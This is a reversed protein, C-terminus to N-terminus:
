ERIWPQTLLVVARQPKAALRRHMQPLTRDRLRVCRPALYHRAAIALNRFSALIQATSHSQIQSRDEDYTFDRRYHVGNEIGWHARLAAGLALESLADAARSTIAFITEQQVQGNALERRRDVRAV